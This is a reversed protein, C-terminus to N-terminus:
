EIATHSYSVTDDRMETFIQNRLTIFPGSPSPGKVGKVPTYLCRPNSEVLRYKIAYTETAFFLLLFILGAKNNSKKYTRLNGFIVDM